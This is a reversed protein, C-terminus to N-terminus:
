AETIEATANSITPPTGTVVTRYPAVTHTGLGIDHMVSYVQYTEGFALAHSGASGDFIAPLQVEPLSLAVANRKPTEDTNAYTLFGGSALLQAQVTSAPVDADFAAFAVNGTVFESTSLEPTVFLHTRRDNYFDFVRASSAQTVSAAAVNRRGEAHRLGATAGSVFLDSLNVATLEITESTMPVPNNPHQVATRNGFTDEAFFWVNYAALNQLRTLAGTNVDLTNLVVGSLTSFEAVFDGLKVMHAAPEIQKQKVLQKISTETLATAAPVAFAYASGGSNDRVQASVSLRFANSNASM